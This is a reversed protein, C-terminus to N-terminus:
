RGSCSVPEVSGVTTGNWNKIPFHAYSQLVEMAKATALEHKKLIELLLNAMVATAARQAGDDIKVAVGYGLAPIAAAMVGEAGSKVFVEGQCVETIHTDARGKGSLMAPNQVIASRIRSVSSALSPSLGKGTGLRAFGTAISVLPMSFAPIACGDICAQSEHLEVGTMLSIASTVERMVPHSANIYGAADLGRVAGVALFGCHKGSCNNHLVTPEEGRAALARSEVSDLPWHVGCELAAASLGIKKLISQATAVHLPSGGHSGCALAIEADSLSYKEAAGSAVLPLAQIPKLCSRPFVTAEVDGMSLIREGPKLSLSRGAVIFRSKKRAVNCLSYNRFNLWSLCDGRAVVFSTAVVKQRGIYAEASLSCMIGNEIKIKAFIQL